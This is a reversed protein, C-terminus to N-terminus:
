PAVSFGDSGWAPEPLFVGFETAEVSVLALAETAGDGKSMVGGRVMAVKSFSGPCCTLAM